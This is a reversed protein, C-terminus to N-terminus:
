YLRNSSVLNVRINKLQQIKVPAPWQAGHQPWEFEDKFPLRVNVMPTLDVSLDDTGRQLVIITLAPSDSLDEVEVKQDILSNNTLYEFADRVLKELHRKFKLPVLFGNETVSKPGKDQTKTHIEKVVRSNINTEEKDMEVYDYYLTQFKRNLEWKTAM